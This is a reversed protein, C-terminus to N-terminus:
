QRTCCRLNYIYFIWCVYIFITFMGDLEKIIKSGHRSFAELLIETDSSTNLKFNSLYKKKIENANYIEGNFCILNKKNQSLMPQNGKESLDRISLRYFSLNLYDDSYFNNSDPGRHSILKSSFYFHNKDIVKNNKIIGFFGCM